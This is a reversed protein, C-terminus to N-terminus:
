MRIDARPRNTTKKRLIKGGSIKNNPSLGLWSTFHKASRFKSVNTGVESIFTLASKANMGPIELLNVGLANFLMNQADFNFRNKKAERKKKVSEGSDNKNEFKQMKEAIEADCQQIQQLYHDYTALIQKLSFLVEEKYHGQLSKEIIEESNKCRSDRYGSLIKPDREGAVIARIIQLGTDGSIDNIVNHLQMNMEILCKQMLQLGRSNSRILNDRHRVLRRLGRIQEDPIFSNNLLGYSHLQQLWQCDQVDTKRGSVNKVHRGNVLYVKFNNKELVEYLPLWYSGTAEMAVTDIKCAKLWDSIKYLDETFFKFERVPKEDRDQAVAVFHSRSGIDIGAANLNVCKLSSTM